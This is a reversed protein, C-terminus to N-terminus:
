GEVERMLHAGAAEGLTGCARGCGRALRPWRAGPNGRLIGRRCAGPCATGDRRGRAEWGGCGPPRPLARAGCPPTGLSFAPVSGSTRAATLPVQLGLGLTTQPRHQVNVGPTLYVQPRRRHSRGPPM